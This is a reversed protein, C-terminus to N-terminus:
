HIQLIQQFQVNYFQADSVINTFRKSVAHLCPSSKTTIKRLARFMNKKQKNTKKIDFHRLLCKLDVRLTFTSRIESCWKEAICSSIWTMNQWHIIEFPIFTMIFKRQSRFASECLSNLSALLNDSCCWTCHLISAHAAWPAEATKGGGNILNLIFM